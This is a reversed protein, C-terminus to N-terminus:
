LGNPKIRKELLIFQQALDYFLPDGAFGKYSQVKVGNLYKDAIVEDGKQVKVGFPSLFVKVKAEVEDADWNTMNREDQKLSSIHCPIDALSTDRVHGTTGDDNKVKVYRVITLKDVYMKEIYKHFNM